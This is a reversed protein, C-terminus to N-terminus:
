SDILSRPQAFPLYWSGPIHGASPRRLRRMLFWPLSPLYGSKFSCCSLSGIGWAKLLVSFPPSHPSTNFNSIRLKWNLPSSSQKTPLTSTSTLFATYERSHAPTFRPFMRLMTHHAVNSNDVWMVWSSMSNFQIFQPHIKWLLVSRGM